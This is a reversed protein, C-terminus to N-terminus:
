LQMGLASMYAEFIADESLRADLGHEAEYERARIVRKLGRTSFGTAKAEAYIDRVDNSLEKRQANLREVREVFGKLETKALRHPEKAAGAMERIHEEGSM